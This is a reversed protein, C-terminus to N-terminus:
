YKLHIHKGTVIPLTKFEVWSSTYSGTLLEKGTFTSGGYGHNTTHGFDSVYESSTNLTFQAETEFTDIYLNPTETDVATTAEYNFTIRIEYHNNTDTADAAYNVGSGPNYSVDITGDSNLSVPQIGEWATEFTATDTDVPSGSDGFNSPTTSSVYNNDGFFIGGCQFNEIREGPFQQSGLDGRLEIETVSISTITTPDTIGDLEFFSTLDITGEITSTDGGSQHGLM